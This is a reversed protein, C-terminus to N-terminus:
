LTSVFNIVLFDNEKIFSDCKLYLDRGLNFEKGYVEDGTATRENYVTEFNDHDEFKVLLTTGRGGKSPIKAPEVPIWTDVIKCDFEKEIFDVLMKKEKELQAKIDLTSMNKAEIKPYKISM